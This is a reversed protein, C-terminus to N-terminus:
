KRASKARSPFYWFYNQNEEAIQEFGFINNRHSVACQQNSNRGFTWVAGDADKCFSHYGGCSLQVVNKPASEFITERSSNTCCDFLLSKHHNPIGLQGQYNSGFTFLNGDLDVFMTHIIGCSINSCKPLYNSLCHPTESQHLSRIKSAGSHDNDFLFGWVDNKNDIFRVFDRACAMKIITAFRPIKFLSSSNKEYSFKSHPSQCKFYYIDDNEALCVSSYSCCKIEKIASPIQIKEPIIQKENTYLGIGYVEKDHNLFLSHKGAGISIINELTKIHHPQTITEETTGLSGKRSSGFTFVNGNVDLCVVHSDGVAVSIINHLDPIKTPLNTEEDKGFLTVDGHQDISATFSIGCSVKILLNDGM